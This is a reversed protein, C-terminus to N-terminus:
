RPLPLEIDEGGPMSLDLPPGVLHRYVDARIVVHTLEGDTKFHVIGAGQGAQHKIADPLDSSSLEAVAITSINANMNPFAKM